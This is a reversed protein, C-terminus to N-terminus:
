DGALGNMIPCDPRDDGHCALVLRQLESKIMTMEALKRDVQAVHDMALAKVDASARSRDEYLSLLARCDDLSFGLSRARGVFALKHVDTESYVRYGNDARAPAVLGVEEYYRLTKSPLGTARSVDKVNM